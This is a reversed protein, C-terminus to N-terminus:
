RQTIPAGSDLLAIEPGNAVTRAAHVGTLLTGAILGSIFIAVLTLVSAVIISGRPQPQDITRLQKDLLEQDYRDM